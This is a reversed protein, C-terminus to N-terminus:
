YYYDYKKLRREFLIADGTRDIALFEISRQIRGRQACTNVGSQHCTGASKGFIAKQGTVVDIGVIPLREQPALQESNTLVAAEADKQSFRYRM